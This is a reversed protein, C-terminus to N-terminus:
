SARLCSVGEVTCSGSCARSQAVWVSATAQTKDEKYKCFCVTDGTLAPVIKEKDSGPPLLGLDIFDQALYGYERNVLHLTARVLAQRTQTCTIVHTVHFQTAHNM